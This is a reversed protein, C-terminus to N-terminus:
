RQRSRPDFSQENAAYEDDIAEDIMDEYEGDGGGAKGDAGGAAKAAGDAGAAAAAKGGGAKRGGEFNYKSPGPTQAEQLLRRIDEVGQVGSYDEDRLYADNMSVAEVPLNALFWPHRQIGEMTAREDPERVLMKGLLDRCEASVEVGAPIVWPQSVIRDMMGRIRTGHANDGGAAAGNGAGGGNAAAQQRQEQQRAAAAAAAAHTNADFPYQGCLMVYLMVGCSWIDAKKGDYNGTARIIEPAMYALTGVKSKPASMFHAKSYGFDCIKLLPLPLGQVMQLLTNELKIDRNVVGRRHCYDLGIVLQQFFWRAAAEKLRVARQVYTFLSGGSAYEMAICIHEPTLFVEKFEIVHPHRLMRHNLIEAEVYRNVRDGREIFKVAVLENTALCRALQVFGFSGSSLDAVKVYRDSGKLPDPNAAAAAAAAGGPAHSPPAAPAPSGNAHAAAAAAAAAATTAM